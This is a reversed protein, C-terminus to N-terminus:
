QIATELSSFMEQIVQVVNASSEYINQIASLQVVQDDVNVGTANSYQTQMATQLSSAQTQNSKVANIDSGLATFVASVYGAYTYGGAAEPIGDSGGLDTRGGATLATYAAAITSTNLSSTGNLLAPTVAISAATSGTFLASSGGGAYADAFSQVGPPTVTTETFMNAISDLQAQLQTITDTGPTTSNPSDTGILNMLGQIQGGVLQATADTGSSDTITGSSSYTFQNPLAASGVLTYGSPTTVQIQNNAEPQVSITVYTSLDSLLANRTDELSGVLQTSGNSSLVGIEQNLSDIQSLDSDMQAIGSGIDTTIQDSVTQLSNSLSNLNQAVNNADNIVQTQQTTSNPEAQLDNWDSVFSNM